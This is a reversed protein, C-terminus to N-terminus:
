GARGTVTLWGEMRAHEAACTVLTVAGVVPVARVITRVGFDGVPIAARADVMAALAAAGAVGLAQM